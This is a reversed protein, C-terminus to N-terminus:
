ILYYNNLNEPQYKIALQYYKIAEKKNGLVVYLQGLNQYFKAPNSNIESLKKYCDIAQQIEGQEILTLALNLHAALNNPDIKIAQQCAITGGILNGDLVKILTKKSYNEFSTYFGDPKVQANNILVDIPTDSLEQAVRDLQRLNTVDLAMEDTKQPARCTSIVNWGDDGYQDALARGIGRNAGTILVTSM